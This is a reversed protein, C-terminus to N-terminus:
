GFLRRLTAAYEIAIHRAPGWASAVCESLACGVQQWRVAKWRPLSTGATLPALLGPSLLVLHAPAPHDQSLRLCQEPGEPADVKNEIVVRGTPLDIVLDARSLGSGGEVELSVTASPDAPFPSGVLELFARLFTTGLGHEGSPDCLWGLLRSHTVEHRERALVGLWDSPGILWEGAERLHGEHATLADLDARWQAVMHLETEVVYRDWQIAMEQLDRDWVEIGIQPVTVV